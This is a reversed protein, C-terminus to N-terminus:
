NRHISYEVTKSCSKLYFCQTTIRNKPERQNQGKQHIIAQRLGWLGTAAGNLLADAITSIWKWSRLWNIDLTVATNNISM